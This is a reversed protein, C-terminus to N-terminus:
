GIIGSNAASTCMIGEAYSTKEKQAAERVINGLSHSLKSSPRGDNRINM